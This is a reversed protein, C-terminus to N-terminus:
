EFPKPHLERETADLNGPELSVRTLVRAQERIASIMEIRRERPLDPNEELTQALGGIAQLPNAMRHRVLQTYHYLAREYEASDDEADSLLAAANAMRVDAEDMLDNADVSKQDADRMHAEAAVMHAMAAKMATAAHRIQAKADLIRADADAIRADASASRLDARREARHIRVDEESPHRDDSM